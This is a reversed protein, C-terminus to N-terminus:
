QLEVEAGLAEFLTKLKAADEKPMNVQVIGPAKDIADKADKIALNTVARLEKILKIKVEAPYKKVNVDYTNKEVKKKEKPVEVPAEETIAAPAAPAAAMVVSGGGGGGGGLGKLLAEEYFKDSHGLKKFIIRQLQSLEKLTLQSYMDAMQEIKPDVPLLPSSSCQRLALTRIGTSYIISFRKM